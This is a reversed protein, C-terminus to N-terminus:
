RGGGGGGGGQASFYRGVRLKFVKGDCASGVASGQISVTTVPSAFQGTVTATHTGAVETAMMQFSDDANLVGSLNAVPQQGDRSVSGSMLQQPNVVFRWALSPCGDETPTIITYWQGILIRELMCGALAAGLLALVFCRAM